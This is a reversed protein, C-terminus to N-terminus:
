DKENIVQDGASQYIRSDDHATAHMTVQPQARQAKRPVFKALEDVIRRLDYEHDAHRLRLYECRRLADIDAPLEADTLRNTDDILVPVVRVGADFAERIERRVWDTDNDLARIGFRDVISLWHPGVVVLLVECGRVRRSLEHEFDSGPPIMTTALFVEDDGFERSLERKLLVATPEGDGTRYNVFIKPM